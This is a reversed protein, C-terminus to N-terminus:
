DKASPKREGAARDSAVILDLLERGLGAPARVRGGGTSIAQPCTADGLVVTVLGVGTDTGADLGIGVAGPKQLTCEEGAPVPDRLEALITRIRNLTKADTVVVMGNSPPVDTTAYTSRDPLMLGGSPPAPPGAPWTIRRLLEDRGKENGSLFVTTAQIEDNFARYTWLPPSRYPHLQGVELLQEDKVTLRNPSSAARGVGKQVVAMWAQDDGECPVHTAGPPGESPWQGFDWRAAFYVTHPKATCVDLTTVESTRWGEPVTVTLGGFSIPTGDPGALDSGDPAATAFPLAVVATVAAAVTGAAAWARRRQVSRRGLSVLRSAPDTESPTVSAAARELLESVDTPSV